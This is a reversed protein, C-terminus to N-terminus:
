SLVQGFVPAVPAGFLFSYTVPTNSTNEVVVSGTIAAALAPTSVASCMVLALPALRRALVPGAAFAISRASM